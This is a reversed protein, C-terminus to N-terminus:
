MEFHRYRCPFTRHNREGTRYLTPLSAEPPFLDIGYKNIKNLFKQQEDEIDSLKYDIIDIYDVYELMLDIIGHYKVNDEYYIFEYEKITKISSIFLFNLLRSIHTAIERNSM